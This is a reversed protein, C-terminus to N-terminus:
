AFAERVKPDKAGEEALEGCAKVIEDEHAAVIPIAKDDLFRQWYEDLYSDRNGPLSDVLARWSVSWMPLEVWLERGIPKFITRLKGQAKPGLREKLVPLLDNKLITRDNGLVRKIEAEHKQLAPALNKELVSMSHGLIEDALPRLARAVLDGNQGLFADVEKK